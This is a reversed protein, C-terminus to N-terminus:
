PDPLLRDVMGHALAVTGMVMPVPNLSLILAAGGFYAAHCYVLASMSPVLSRQYRFYANEIRSFM